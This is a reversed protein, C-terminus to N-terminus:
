FLSWSILMKQVPLMLYSHAVGRFSGAHGCAQISYAWPVEKLQWLLLMRSTVDQLQWVSEKKRKTGTPAKANLGCRM